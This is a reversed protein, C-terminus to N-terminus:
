LLMNELEVKWILTVVQISFLFFPMLKINDLHIFINVGSLFISDLTPTSSTSSIPNSGNDEDLLDQDNQYIDPIDPIFGIKDKLDQITCCSM